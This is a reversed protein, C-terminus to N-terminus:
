KGIYNQFFFYILSKLFSVGSLSSINSVVSIRKKEEAIIVQVDAVGFLELIPLLQFSLFSSVAGEYNDNFVLQLLIDWTPSDLQRM